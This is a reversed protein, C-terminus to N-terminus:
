WGASVTGSRFMFGPLFFWVWRARWTEECPTSGEIRVVRYDTLLSIM